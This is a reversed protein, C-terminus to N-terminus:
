VIIAEDTGLLSMGPGNLEPLRTNERPWGKRPDNAKRGQHPRGAARGFKSTREPPTFHSRIPYATEEPQSKANQAHVSGDQQPQAGQPFGPGTKERQQGRAEETKQSQNHEHPRQNQSPSKLGSNWGQPLPREPM